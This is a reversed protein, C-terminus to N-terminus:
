CMHVNLIKYEGNNSGEHLALKVYSMDEVKSKMNTVKEIAERRCWVNHAATLMWREGLLVGSGYCSIYKEGDALIKVKIFCIFRNPVEQVDRV